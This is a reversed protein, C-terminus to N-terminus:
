YFMYTAAHPMTIEKVQLIHVTPNLEQTIKRDKVSNSTTELKGKKSFWVHIKTTSSLPLIM